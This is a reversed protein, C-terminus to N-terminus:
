LTTGVKNDILGLTHLIKLIDLIRDGTCELADGVFSDETKFFHSVAPEIDLIHLEVRIGDM